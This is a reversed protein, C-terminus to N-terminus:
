QRFFKDIRLRHRLNFRYYMTFRFLVFDFMIFVVLGILMFAVNYLVETVSLLLYNSIVLIIALSFLAYLLKTPIKIVRKKKDLLAYVIPYFGLFAYEIAVLKSPLLLLAIVTTVVYVFVSKYRLEEFCVVLLFSALIVASLDFIEIFSGLALLVVGLAAM